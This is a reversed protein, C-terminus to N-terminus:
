PWIITKIAILDLVMSIISLLLALTELTLLSVYFIAITGVGSSTFRYPYLILCSSWISLSGKGALSRSAPVTSQYFHALQTQAIQKRTTM